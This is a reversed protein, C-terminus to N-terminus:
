NIISTFFDWLRGGALQLGLFATIYNLRLRPLQSDLLSIIYIGTWPSILHGLEVM